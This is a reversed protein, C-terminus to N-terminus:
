SGVCKFLGYIDTPFQQRDFTIWETVMQINLRPHWHTTPRDGGSEQVCLACCECALGDVSWAHAAGAWRPPTAQCSTSPRLSLCWMAPSLSRSLCKLCRRGAVGVVLSSSYTHLCLATTSPSLHFPLTSWGAPLPRLMSDAANKHGYTPHPTM